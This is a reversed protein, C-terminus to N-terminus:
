DKKHNVIKRSVRGVVYHAGQFNGAKHHYKGKEPIENLHYDARHFTPFYEDSSHRFPHKEEDREM